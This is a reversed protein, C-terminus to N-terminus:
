KDRDNDPLQYVTVAPLPNEPDNGLLKRDALGLERSIINANLLDASAGTFKQDYIIKEVRTIIGLLDERDARWNQWAQESIDLFICLARISMARMKKMNTKTISGQFSFAKEELLPNDEVWQFYQLCADWLPEPGEFKPNPGHSSRALWFQNGKPAAMIKAKQTKQNTALMRAKGYNKLRHNYIVASM